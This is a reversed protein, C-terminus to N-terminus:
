NVLFSQVKEVFADEQLFTPPSKCDKFTEKQETKKLM